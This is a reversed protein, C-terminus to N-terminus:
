KVPRVGGALVVDHAGDDKRIILFGLADLGATVGELVSSGQDVRVRKNRAYSSRVSFMKLITNRGDGAALMGCYREVAGLLAILLHERSQPRHSVMRLSTAELAIEPPFDLHNVNIGIGAIALSIPASDILPVLIGAVKRDAVMVDNPWRLDCDIAATETIAEATALGLALTLVPMADAVLEPRLVISVYLGSNPESHWRRGHRGQGATQEDAVVVAGQPCGAEALREAERMTSDITDFYLVPRPWHQRVYELDFPM